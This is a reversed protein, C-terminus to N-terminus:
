PGIICTRLASSILLFNVDRDCSASKFRPNVEPAFSKKIEIFLFSQIQYQAYNKSEEISIEGPNSFFQVQNLM